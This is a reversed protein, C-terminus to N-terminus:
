SCYDNNGRGGDICGKICNQVLDIGGNAGCSFLVNNGAAPAIQHDMCIRNIDWQYNGVRLLTSGCYNIGQKCNNAVVSTVLMTLLATTFISFQM